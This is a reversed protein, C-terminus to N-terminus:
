RGPYLKEGRAAAQRIRAKLAEREERSAKSYDFTTNVASSTGNEVPRRTGSAISNALKASVAQATAQATAQQMEARHIAFYADEVSLGSNPATLRVFTPNTMETRLDFNPYMQKLREGQRELDILHERIRQEEISQEREAKMRANEREATDIRRATEASVGLEVAREEWYSDDETVAKILADDDQTGYKSSLLDLVPAFKELREQAQKTNKLRKQITEQMAKNYEPDAMIEDWTMRQPTETEAAAAQQVSEQAEPQAPQEPQTGVQAPKRSARKKLLHEPVGLERLAGQGDDASSDVSAAGEGGGGDGGDAFLQLWYKDRM